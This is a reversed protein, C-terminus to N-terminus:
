LTFDFDDLDEFDLLEADIDDIISTDFEMSADIDAAIADMDTSTSLDSNATTYWSVDESDQMYWDAPIVVTSGGESMIDKVMTKYFLIGGLAVIAVIVVVALAPGVSSQKQTTETEM